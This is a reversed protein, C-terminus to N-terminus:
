YSNIQKDNKLAKGGGRNIGFYHHQDQPLSSFLVCKFM